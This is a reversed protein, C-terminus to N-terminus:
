QPSQDMISLSEVPVEAWSTKFFILWFKYTAMKFSNAFWGSRSYFRPDRLLCADRPRKMCSLELRGYIV